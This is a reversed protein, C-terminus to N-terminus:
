TDGYILKLREYLEKTDSPHIGGMRYVGCTTCYSWFTIRGDNYLVLSGELNLHDCTYVREIM